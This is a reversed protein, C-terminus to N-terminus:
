HHISVHAHKIMRMLDGCPITRDHLYRQELDTSEAALHNTVSCCNLIKEASIDIKM